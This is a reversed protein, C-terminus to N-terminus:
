SSMAFAGAAKLSGRHWRDPTGLLARPYDEWMWRAFQRRTWPSLGAARVAGRAGVPSRLVAQLAGAFRLDRGLARDVADRYRAGVDGGRAIAEAALTGTDLAQAIGEGTMPDVVGAADGVYLVRGDTLRARDYRAPIPWARVSDIAQAKPGLIDRVVRRELLNPWLRKLDRGKRRDDRLVGYGVNVQGGPLPFVWAYGPLLDKEFIVWLRTDRVGDFYQRVAHWEGLDRKVSPQLVRRVTSFHGDAAIVFRARVDTGGDVDLTVHDDTLEVHRVGYGDRVDVGHGRAVDLLAADLDLRRVVAAHMGDGALPLRVRRGSPSVLVTEDVVVAPLAHLRECALGLRELAHLASATLGDGCTKDRPFKAKDLCVVRLGNRAATIAAAAGAPGGGVIAVDFPRAVV